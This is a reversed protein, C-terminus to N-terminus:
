EVDWSWGNMGGMMNKVKSYGNAMLYQCAKASRGGSRCVMITERNPDIENMRDPIQGVPIHKAGPIKGAAVENDERVDIVQLAEGRKIREQVDLPLINVVQAM